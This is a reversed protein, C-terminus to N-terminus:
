KQDYDYSLPDVLSGQAGGLRLEFHLHPGTSNGTSGVYGLVQGAHVREGQSVAQRSMHMYISCNGEENQVIVHNGRSSDYGSYIVTGDDCALISTGTPAPIDIGAHMNGWRMGFYSSITTYGPLPWLMQDRKLVTVTGQLPDCLYKVHDVVVEGQVQLGDNDVYYQKGDKDKLFTNTAVHGDKYTFIEGKPTAIWRDSHNRQGYFQGSSNFFCLIGNERLFGTQLTGDEGFRYTEGTELEVAANFALTGNEEVYYYRGANELWGKQKYLAGNDQFLYLKKDIKTLGRVLEGDKMVFYLDGDVDDMWGLHQRSDDITLPTLAPEESQKKSPVAPLSHYTHFAEYIKEGDASVSAPFLLVFALGGFLLVKGIYKSFEIKHLQMISGRM